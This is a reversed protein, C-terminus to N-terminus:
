RSVEAFTQEDLPNHEFADWWCAGILALEIEDDTAVWGTGCAPCFLTSDRPGYWGSPNYPELHGIPGDGCPTPAAIHWPLGRNWPIGTEAGM